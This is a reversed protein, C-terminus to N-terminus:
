DEPAPTPPTGSDVVVRWAGEDDRRWVSVYTGIMRQSAGMEDLAAATYDGITFGLDGCESVEARFPQWSLTRGSDRDLFISWAEVIAERGDLLGSGLFVADEAIWSTFAPRHRAALARNFAEDAKWVPSDAGTAIASAHGLSFGALASLTVALVLVVGRKM